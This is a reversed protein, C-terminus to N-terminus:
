ATRTASRVRPRLRETFPQAPDRERPQESLRIQHFTEYPLTLFAGAPAPAFHTGLSQDVEEMAHGHSKSTRYARGTTMADYSDCVALIQAM